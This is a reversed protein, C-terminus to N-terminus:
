VTLEELSGVAMLIKKQGNAKFTGDKRKELVVVSFGGLVQRKCDTVDVVDLCASCNSQPDALAVALIRCDGAPEPVLITWDKESQQPAVIIAPFSVGAFSIHLDEPTTTDASFAVRGGKMEIMGALALAGGKAKAAGPGTEEIPAVPKKGLTLWIEDVSLIKSLARIHDKRPMSQGNFWRSMTNNSVKTSTEKQLKEIVWSQRGFPTPPALPHGEVAIILRKGFEKTTDQAM